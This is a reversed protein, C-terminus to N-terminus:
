MYITFLLLMCRLKIFKVEFVFEVEMSDALIKKFLLTYRTKNTIQESSSKVMSNSYTMSKYCINSIETYPKVHM